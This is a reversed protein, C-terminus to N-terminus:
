TVNYRYARHDPDYAPRVMTPERLPIRVVEEGREDYGYVQGRAVRFRHVIRDTSVALLLVGV